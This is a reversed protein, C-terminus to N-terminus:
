GYALRINGHGSLWPVNETQPMTVPSDTLAWRFILEFNSRHFTSETVGKFSAQGAVSGSM